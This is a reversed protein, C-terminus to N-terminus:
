LPSAKMFVYYFGRNLCSGPNKNNVRKNLCEWLMGRYALM